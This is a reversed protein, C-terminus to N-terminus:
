PRPRLGVDHHEHRHGGDRMRRAGFVAAILFAAVGFVAFVAALPAPMRRVFRDWKNM